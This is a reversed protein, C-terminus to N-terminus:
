ASALLTADEGSATTIQSLAVGVMFRHLYSPGGAKPETGPLGQGGFPQAGVAAGTTHRNVHTNGVKADNCAQQTPADLRTHLGLTLGYGASNIEDIVNDMPEGRCKVVHRIPGFAEAELGRASNLMVERPAVYYHGDENAPAECKYLLQAGKEELGKTHKMLNHYAQEHIASSVYNTVCNAKGIKFEAMADQLMKFVNDAIEQQLFLQRFCSCRQGASHFASMIIDDFVQETLASSDVIMANIGGTEAVLPTMPGNRTALM